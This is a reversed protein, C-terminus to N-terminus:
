ELHTMWYIPLECHSYRVDSIRYMYYPKGLTKATLERTYIVKLLAVFFERVLSSVAFARRCLGVVHESRTICTIM